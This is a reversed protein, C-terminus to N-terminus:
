LQQQQKQAAMMQQMQQMQQMQLMEMPNSGAMMGPMLGPMSGPNVQGPQTSKLANDEMYKGVEQPIIGIYQMLKIIGIEMDKFIKALEPHTSIVEESVNKMFDEEEYGYKSYVMDNLVLALLMPITQVTEQNKELGDFIKKLEEKKETLMNTQYLIM